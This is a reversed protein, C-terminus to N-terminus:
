LTNEATESGLMTRLGATLDTGPEYGIASRVATLDALSHPVDGARPPGFRPEAATPLITRITEALARVTTRAGAGVNYAHGCAERPARAALLNALVADDVFTFDRSQNGDGHIVAPEGALSAEM